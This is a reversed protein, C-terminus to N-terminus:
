QIMARFEQPSLGTNRVFFKTFNTPESFGLMAGITSSLHRTHALLRKAELVVRRDIVEKPSCGLGASTARSLTKPSAGVAAAYQGVSRTSFYRRELVSRFSVLLDQHSGDPPPGSAGALRHLLYRAAAALVAGDPEPAAQERAIDDVIAMITTEAPGPDIRNQPTLGDFLGAPTVASSVLVLDAEFLQDDPPSIVQGPHVHLLIGPEVVCEVFDVTYATRGLNPVVLLHSNLRDIAGRVSGGSVLRDGRHLWDDIDRWTGDLRGDDPVVAVM